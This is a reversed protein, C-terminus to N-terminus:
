FVANGRIMRRLNDQECNLKLYGLKMELVSVSFDRERQTFIREEDVAFIDCPPSDWENGIGRWGDSWWLPTRKM